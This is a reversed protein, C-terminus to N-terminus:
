GHMTDGNQEREWTDAATTQTGGVLLATVVHLTDTVRAVLHAFALLAVGDSQLSGATLSM